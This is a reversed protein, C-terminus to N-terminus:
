LRHTDHLWTYIDAVTQQTPRPFYGLERAAKAGSVTPDTELAHLSEPTFLPEGATRNAWWLGAPAALKAVAMPV